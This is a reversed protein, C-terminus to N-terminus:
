NVNLQIDPDIDVDFNDMVQSLQVPDLSSSPDLLTPGIDADHDQRHAGLQFGPRSRSSGVREQM